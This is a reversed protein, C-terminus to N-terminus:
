AIVRAARLAETHETSFGSELLIEDSHQGMDPTPEAIAAPTRSLHVPQGVLRIEGRRPHRVSTAIGLHDVQPDSFMEGVTYIPGAPVGAETLAAIWESSTRKQFIEALEASIRPRIRLRREQTAYDPDSIRETLGLAECLGRWQGDAAVGINIYGDATPFASMPTSVPHDNGAQGPVEGDVLFRAAQFDMLAIQAGLLSTQVWQGEGSRDREALAILTGIVAYLGASSDAVATGARMPGQGPHGTVSMLGGMGQAIQDFGARTRYPGTEGFGSISTLVIRPNVACLDNYGIGLREKVDPRFNEVVVDATSVLKMLVDVGQPAKLDLVLSRKNRHLNQMDYGDRHGSIGENREAGPPAEIKVVDAGFDAFIRCCTPGARVRTLDLIRLNSLALSATIKSMGISRM